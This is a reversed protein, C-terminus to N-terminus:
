SMSHPRLETAAIIRNLETNLIANKRWNLRIKIICVSIHAGFIGIQRNNIRSQM